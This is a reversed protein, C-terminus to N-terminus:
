NESEAETLNRAEMKDIFVQQKHAVMSILEAPTMGLAHALMMTYALVDALEARIKDVHADGDRWRKKIFNAVEGAEGALGLGFFRIDGEQSGTASYKLHNRQAQEWVGSLCGAEEMGERKAATRGQEVYASAKNVKHPKICDLFEYDSVRESGMTPISVKAGCGGAREDHTESFAVHVGPVWGCNDCWWDPNEEEESVM